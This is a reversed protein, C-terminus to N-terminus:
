YVEVAESSFIMRNMRKRKIAEWDLPGWGPTSFFSTTPLKGDESQQISRNVIDRELLHNGLPIEITFPAAASSALLVGALSLINTEGQHAGVQCSIGSEMALEGIKRTRSIGGLKSIKLNFNNAVRQEIFHQVQIFTLLSEDLGLYVQHGFANTLQQMDKVEEVPLPQEIAQVGVEKLYLIQIKASSLTWGGRADVRIPFDVGWKARIMRINAVDWTIQMGIHLKVRSPHYDIEDLAKRLQNPSLIPIVLEYALRDELQIGLLKDMCIQQSKSLLDLFALELACLTAAGVGFIELYDLFDTIDSLSSITIDYIEQKWNQLDNRVSAVSEGTEMNRPCAEGYGIQGNLGWLELLVSREKSESSIQLETLGIRHIKM